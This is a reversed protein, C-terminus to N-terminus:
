PKIDHYSKLMHDSFDTFGLEKFGEYAEFFYEKKTKLYPYLLSRMFDVFVNSEKEWVNINSFPNFYNEVRKIDNIPVSVVKKIGFFRKLNEIKFSHVLEKDTNEDDIINDIQFVINNFSYFFSTSELSDTEPNWTLGEIVVIKKESDSNNIANFLGKNLSRIM